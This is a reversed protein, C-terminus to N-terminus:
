PDIDFELSRPHNKMWKQSKFGVFRSWACFWSNLSFFFKLWFWSPSSHTSSKTCQFTHNYNILWPFPLFLTFYYDLVMIFYFKLYFKNPFALSFLHFPHKEKEKWPGGLQPKQFSTRVVKRPLLFIILRLLHHLFFLYIPHYYYRQFFPLSCPYNQSSLIKSFNWLVKRTKYCLKKKM